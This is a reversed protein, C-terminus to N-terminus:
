RCLQGYANLMIREAMSWNYRELVAKRGADGRARCEGPNALAQEMADAVTVPDTPDVLWGCGTEDVVRGMEPFRSAIV